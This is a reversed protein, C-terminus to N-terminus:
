VDQNGEERFQIWVPVCKWGSQVLLGRPLRVRQEAKLWVDEESITSIEAGVDSAYLIWASLSKDQESM